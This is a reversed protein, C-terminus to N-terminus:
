TSFWNFYRQDPVFCPWNILRIQLQTVFIKCWNYNTINVSWMRCTCDNPWFSTWYANFSFLSKSASLLVNFFNCVGQGFNTRFPILCILQSYLAHFIVETFWPCIFSYINWKKLGQLPLPYLNTIQWYNNSYWLICFFFSCTSLNTKGNVINWWM